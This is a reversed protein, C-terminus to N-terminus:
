SGLMSRSGRLREMVAKVHVSRGMIEAWTVSSNCAKLEEMWEKAYESDKTEPFCPIGQTFHVLRADNRPADYGVCHNWESPLSGVENAWQFAQPANNANDVWEPTLTECKANNFLMLSPWEFRLQPNKVVMVAYKDDALDFLKSIDDLVLMDADLFLSWGEYDCLFPCLYRSFTFETLGVRKIPLQSLRLKTIPAPKSSRESISHHLVQYAIPQRPDFGIFVRM